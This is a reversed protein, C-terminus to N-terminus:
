VETTPLDKVRSKIANYGKTPTIESSLMYAAIEYPHEGSPNSGFFYDWDEPAKNHITRTNPDWWVIDIESLVPSKLSKFLGLPVYTNKWIFLPANYLDPNIRRREEIKSPLTGIWPKMDWVEELLKNWENPYLRQSIHIREHLLTSPLIKLDINYPLCIFNPARTHPLGSDATPDMWIVQGNPWPESLNAGPVGMYLGYRAPMYKNGIRATTNIKSNSLAKRYGDVEEALNLAQLGQSGFLPPREPRLPDRFNEKTDDDYFFSSLTLGM